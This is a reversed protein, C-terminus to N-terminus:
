NIKRIRKKAVDIKGGVRDVDQDLVDLLQGQGVLEENIAVGMEKMRRVVVALDEVDMDQDKMIQQQLQLVGANDLERTRETEKAPAGLVRRSSQAAHTPFAGPINNGNQYSKSKSASSSYSEPSPSRAASSRTVWSNLVGELAEREKRARTVLDRRRRIEGDGLKEAGNKGESLGRLGDDLRLILTHAKVLWKKAQASSEHALTTSQASERKSLALRANQIHSKLENHLDLWQSSSMSQRAAPGLAEEELVSAKRGASSTSTSFGLFQKYVASNRWTSETSQDEIGKLYAELGKRREETLEPNNVTRSFWSKAPLPAPPAKGIQAVLAKHLAEFDSYRKPVTQTRLPTEIVIHYATYPKATGAATTVETSPIKLTYPM